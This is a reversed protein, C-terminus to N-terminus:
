MGKKCGKKWKQRKKFNEIKFNICYFVFICFLAVFFKWIRFNSICFLAFIINWFFVHLFPLFAVQFHLFICPYLLVFFDLFIHKKKNRDKKCSNQFRVRLFVYSTYKVTKRFFEHKYHNWLVIHEYKRTNIKWM